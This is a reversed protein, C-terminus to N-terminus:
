SPSLTGNEYGKLYELYIEDLTPIIERFSRIHFDNEVLTKIVIHTFFDSDTDLDIYLKYDYDNTEEIRNLIPIKSLCNLENPKYSLVLEFRKEKYLFNKLESISGIKIIKGNHIIGVRDAVDEVDSLIHSSFFVTTGKNRLDKIIQKVRIRAEPDLGSLPEDLVLFKPSHLIAQALGIKQINGGSLTKIKKKLNSSIGLYNLTNKIRSEMEYDPIGSLIGFTYLAHEVTRWEQFAVNQPLYGFMKYIAPNDHPTKYEKLVYNGTFNKILGVMIKITTTKGAGNPGIYGFVEGKKLNFSINNLAKVNFYKKSVSDFSVIYEKAM